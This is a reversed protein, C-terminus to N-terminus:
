DSDLNPRRVASIVRGCGRSKGIGFALDPVRPSYVAAEKVNYQNSERNAMWHKSPAQIPQYKAANVAPGEYIWVHATLADPEWAEGAEVM